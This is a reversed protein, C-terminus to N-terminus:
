DPNFNKTWINRRNTKKEETMAKAPVVGVQLCRFGMSKM